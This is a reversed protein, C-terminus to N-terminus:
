IERSRYKGIGRHVWKVVEVKGIERNGLKGKKLIKRM